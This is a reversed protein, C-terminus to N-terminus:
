SSDVANHLLEFACIRQHNILEMALPCYTGMKLEIKLVGFFGM